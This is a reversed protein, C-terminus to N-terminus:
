LYQIPKLERTNADQIGRWLLLNFLNGEEYYEIILCSGVTRAARIINGLLCVFHRWHYIAQAENLEDLTPQALEEQM